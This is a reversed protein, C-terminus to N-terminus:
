LIGGLLHTISAFAYHAPSLGVPQLATFTHSIAGFFERIGPMVVSAVAVCVAVRLIAEDERAWAALFQRAEHPTTQERAVLLLTTRHDNNM